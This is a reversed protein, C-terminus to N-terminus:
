IFHKIIKNNTGTAKYLYYSNFFYMNNLNKNLTGINNKIWVNTKLKLIKQEKSAM